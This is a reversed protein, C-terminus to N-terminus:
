QLFPNVRREFGITTMPGHGPIVRTDDDLTLLRSHISRLIQNFDGGPLDTRGISGQFLTDGALLLKGLSPFHFSVSGPTHGPTYMTEGEYAGFRLTFGDELHQDIEGLDPKPLRLMLAQMAVNQWLFLDGHHLGVLANTRKQVEATAGIHDLHAHTHIIAKVKTVGHFALRSLILEAEDGPDVVLAEGTQPDALITCNCQFPGVPITEVIPSPMAM